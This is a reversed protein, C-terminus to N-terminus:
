HCNIYHSILLTLKTDGCKSCVQAEYSEELCRPATTRVNHTVTTIIESEYNHGFLFCSLGYPTIEDGGHVLLEVIHQQEKLTFISDAEFKVTVDQVTYTDGYSEAANASITLATLLLSIILIISIKKM